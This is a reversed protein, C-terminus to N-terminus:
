QQVKGGWSTVDADEGEGGIRGDRGLTYLDFSEPNARGPSVYL